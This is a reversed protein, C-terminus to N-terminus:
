HQENSLVKGTLYFYIESAAEFWHYCVVCKYRQAQLANLWDVQEPKVGGTDWQHEPRRKLREKPRKMEIYLGAYKLPSWNRHEYKSLDIEEFVPVPLFIDPVGRKVGEAKMRSAVIANREGGNPIAHLLALRPEFKLNNAAWCFLATQHEHESGTKIFDEPKM